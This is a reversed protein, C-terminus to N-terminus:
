SGVFFFGICLGLSEGGLVTEPHKTRLAHSPTHPGPPKMLKEPTGLFDVFWTVPLNIYEYVMDYLMILYFLLYYFLGIFIYLIIYVDDMIYLDIEGNKRAWIPVKCRSRTAWPADNGHRTAPSSGSLAMAPFHMTCSTQIAPFDVICAHLNIYIPVDDLFPPKFLFNM